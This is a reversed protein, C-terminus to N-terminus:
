HSQWATLYNAFFKDVTGGLAWVTTAIVAAVGAALLGYELASAGEESGLLDILISRKQRM